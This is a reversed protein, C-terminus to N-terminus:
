AREGEAADLLRETDLEFLLYGASIKGDDTIEIKISVGNGEIETTDDLVAIARMLDIPLHALGNIVRAVDIHM